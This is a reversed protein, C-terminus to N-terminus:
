TLFAQKFLIREPIRLWHLSILAATVVLYPPDCIDALRILTPGLAGPFRDPVRLSVNPRRFDRLVSRKWLDRAHSPWPILATGSVCSSGSGSVRCSCSIGSCCTEIPFKHPLNQTVCTVWRFRQDICLWQYVPFSVVVVNM